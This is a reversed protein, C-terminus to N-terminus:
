NRNPNQPNEEGGPCLHTAHCGEGPQADFHRLIPAMQPTSRWGRAWDAPDGLIEQRLGSSGPRFIYLFFTKLKAELHPVPLLLFQHM